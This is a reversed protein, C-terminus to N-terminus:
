QQPAIHVDYLLEGSFIGRGSGIFQLVSSSPIQIAAGDPFILGITEANGYVKMTEPLRDLSYQGGFQDVRVSHTQNDTKREVTCAEQGTMFLIIQQQRLIVELDIHQQLLPISGFVVCATATLLLIGTVIRVRDERIRRLIRALVVLVMVCLSILVSAHFIQALFYRLVLVIMTGTGICVCTRAIWHDFQKAVIVLTLVLVFTVIGYRYM